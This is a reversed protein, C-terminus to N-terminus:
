NNNMMIQRHGDAATSLIDILVSRLLIGAAAFNAMLLSM